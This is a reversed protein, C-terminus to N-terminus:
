PLPRRSAHRVRLIRMEQQSVRRYFVQYPFGSVVAVRTGARNVQRGSDPFRQLRDFMDALSDFFDAAAAPNNQMLYLGIQTAERFAAPALVLRM